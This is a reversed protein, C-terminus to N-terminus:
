LLEQQQSPVEEATTQPVDDTVAPDSVEHVAGADLPDPVDGTMALSAHDDNPQTAVQPTANDDGEQQPPEAVEQETDQAAPASDVISPPATQPLPTDVNDPAGVGNSGATEETGSRDEVHSEAKDEVEEDVNDSVTTDPTESRGVHKVICKPRGAKRRRRYLHRRLANVTATLTRIDTRLSEVDSTSLVMSQRLATSLTAPISGRQQIQDNRRVSGTTNGLESGVAQVARTM